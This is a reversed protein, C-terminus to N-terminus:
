KKVSGVVKWEVLCPEDSGPLVIFSQTSSGAKRRVWKTLYVAITWVVVTIGFFWSCLTLMGSGPVTSAQYMAWFLAGLMLCNAVIRILGVLLAETYRSMAGREFFEKRWRKAFLFEWMAAMKAYFPPSTM